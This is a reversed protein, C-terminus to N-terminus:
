YDLRGTKKVYALLAKAKKVDGLLKEMKMGDWGVARRLEERYEEHERCRLLYHAVM